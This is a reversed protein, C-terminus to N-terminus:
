LAAAAQIPHLELAPLINQEFAPIPHLFLILPHLINHLPCFAQYSMAHILAKQAMQGEAYRSEPSSKFSPKDYSRIAHRAALMLSKKGNNDVAYGEQGKNIHFCKLLKTGLDKEKMTWQLSDNSLEEDELVQEHEVKELPRLLIGEVELDDKHEKFVIDLDFTRGNSTFQYLEVIYSHNDKTENALYVISSETMEGELTYRLAVYMQKGSSRGKRLVLNVTYRISPTLFQTRIHVKFGKENTELYSCPFRSYGDTYFFSYGGERSILCHAISLM